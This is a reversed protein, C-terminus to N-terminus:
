GFLASNYIKLSGSILQTAKNGIKWSQKRYGIVWVRSAKELQVPKRSSLISIGSTNTAILLM